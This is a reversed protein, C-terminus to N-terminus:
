NPSVYIIFVMFALSMVFFWQACGSTQKPAEITDEDDSPLSNEPDFNLFGLAVALTTKCDGLASHADDNPQVDFAWAATDLKHWRYDWEGDFYRRRGALESFALMLCHWKRRKMTLGYAECTQRIIRRDFSVNYAIINKGATIEVYDKYVDPWSRCNKLDRDKIGHVESAGKSVKRGPGPKVRENLLINGQFDLICIEILQDTRSLGTTETDLIVSKEDLAFSNLASEFRKALGRKLIRGKSKDDVAVYHTHNKGYM